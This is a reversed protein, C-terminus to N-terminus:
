CQGVATHRQQGRRLGPKKMVSSAHWRCRAAIQLFESHVRVIKRRGRGPGWATEPGPAAKEGTMCLNAETPAGGAHVEELREYCAPHQELPRFVACHPLSSSNLAGSGLAWRGHLLTKKQHCPLLPHQCDVLSLRQPSEAARNM